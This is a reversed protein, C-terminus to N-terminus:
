MERRATIPIVSREFELEAIDVPDVLHTPVDILVPAGMAIQLARAGVIRAKEFRTYGRIREGGEGKVLQHAELVAYGGENCDDDQQRRNPWRDLRRPGDPSGPRTPRRVAAGEGM